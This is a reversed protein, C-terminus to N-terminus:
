GSAAGTLGCGVVCTLRRDAHDARDRRLAAARIAHPTRAAITKTLDLLLRRVRTEKILFIGPDAGGDRARAGPRAPATAPSEGFGGMAPARVPDIDEFFFSVPVDLVRSVEHLRSAGMRNVGREYKQVPQFTLGIAARLKGKTFGLMNRRLRLRAGVRVDIPHPKGTM